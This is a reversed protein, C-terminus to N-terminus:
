SCSHKSYDSILAGLFWFLKLILWEKLVKRKREVELIKLSLENQM